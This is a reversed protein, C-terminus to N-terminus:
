AQGNKEGGGLISLLRELDGADFYYYAGGAELVVEEVVGRAAELLERPADALSASRSEAELVLRRSELRARLGREELLPGLRELLSGLGELLRNV